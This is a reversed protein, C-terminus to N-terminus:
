PYKEQNIDKFTIILHFISKKFINIEKRTFPCFYSSSAAPCEFYIYSFYILLNLIFYHLLDRVTQIFSYDSDGSM